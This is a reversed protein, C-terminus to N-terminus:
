KAAGLEFGTALHERVRHDHTVVLLAAGAEQTTQQLLGLTQHANTDDLASTPEDAIVLSPAHVLSRAVAVRQAQGHSLDSPKRHRLEWVDLQKLLTEIRSRDRQTRSLKQALALNDMVTLAPLLHFRQFVFGIHEGRFRDRQSESLSGLDEGFVEVSGKEPALLGAVLHVFTSKGCGSPGIISCAQQSKLEFKDFALVIEAGYSFALNTVRVALPPSPNPDQAASEEQRSSM